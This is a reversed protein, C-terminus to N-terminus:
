GSGSLGARRRLVANIGAFPFRLWIAAFVLVRTLVGRRAAEFKRFYRWLGRHKHWEVFWPNSRSSVGRVHVVRVRNSVAIEVGHDALRRCLDLDEAHLRYGEDFGGIGEFVNRALFMLAGSIAEVPQLAVADDPVIALSSGNGQQRGGRRLTVGGLMALFDPARRRAAPDRVGDEDVLDVGLLVASGAAHRDVAFERLRALSDVEVLADPNVFALWRCAPHEAGIAAAGQNCAVGFGANDPNAIFRLRPDATAQRQIIAVSGDTSANDVVRISAVGTAGRLRELCAELTSVSQFSVVVVGIDAPATARAETM